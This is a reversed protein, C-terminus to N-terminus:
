DLKLEVLKLEVLKVVEGEVGSWEATQIFHFFGL